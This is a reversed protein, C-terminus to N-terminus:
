VQIFRSYELHNVNEDMKVAPESIVEEAKARATQADEKSDQSQDVTNEAIVPKNQPKVIVDAFASPLEFNELIMMAKILKEQLLDPDATGYESVITGVRQTIKWADEWSLGKLDILISMLEPTCLTPHTDNMQVAVKEPFEEWSVSGGSRTEFRAIIDQLSASCLTYQQKLRLAKRPFSLTLYLKQQRPISALTIHLCILIQQLPKQQGTTKTKYGPIPVDYAFPWFTKEVLGVNRVMQDLFWKEM